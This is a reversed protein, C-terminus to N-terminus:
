SVLQLQNSTNLAVGIGNIANHRISKLSTNLQQSLKDALVISTGSSGLLPSPTHARGLLQHAQRIDSQTINHISSFVGAVVGIKTSHAGFVLESKENSSHSHLVSSGLLFLIDKLTQRHTMVPMQMGRVDISLDCGLQRSLPRLSHAVDYLASSVNVPELELKVQNISCTYSDIIKLAHKSLVEIQEGSSDIAAAHSITLLLHQIQDTLAQYLRASEM